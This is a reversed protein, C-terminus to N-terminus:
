FLWDFSIFKIDGDTTPMINLLKYDQTKRILKKLAETYNQNIEKLREKLAIKDNQCEESALQALEKREDQLRQYTQSEKGSLLYSISPKDKFSICKVEGISTDSFYGKLHYQAYRNEINKKGNAIDAIHKGFEKGGNLRTTRGFSIPSTRM